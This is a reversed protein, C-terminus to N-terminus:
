EETSMLDKTPRAWPPNSPAASGSPISSAYAMGQIPTRGASYQPPLEIPPMVEDIDQHVIFRSQGGRSPNFGGKSGPTANTSLQASVSDPIFSSGSERISDSTLPHPTHPPHTRSYVTTAFPQSSMLQPSNTYVLPSAQFSETLDINRSQRQTNRRRCFYWIAAIIIICIAAGGVAIGAIAGTSLSVGDEATPSPSPSTTTPTFASQSSTSDTGPSLCSSDNSPLVMNLVDTGGQRGQSDTVTFAVWTQAKLNAIWTYSSAPPPNLVFSEFGNPIYGYITLPLVAGDYLTFPYPKCQELTGDTTFFFDNAPLTTNCTRGTQTDGVRLLDSTGGSLPGTADSMSLIIQAGKPVPLQTTFSGKNDVFADSPTSINIPAANINVIILNFPPTGGTWSVTLDDCQFPSDSTFIFGHTFSLWIAVSFWCLFSPHASM